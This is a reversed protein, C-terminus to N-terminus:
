GTSIGKALRAELSQWDHVGQLLDGNLLFSPTGTIAYKQADAASTAALERAKTNDNLCQDLQTIRYGRKEMIDYFGFDNAINRRAASQDAITWRQIQAASAKSALPLWKDQSLMIASHNNPFDTPDGCHTLMAATLDIPDRIFHRIELKLKGSSVFAFKLVPDGDRAFSACHSCTYSIFETLHTAAEPNGMVHGGNIRAITASSTNAKKGSSQGSNQASIAAATEAMGAANGPLVAMIGLLIATKLGKM